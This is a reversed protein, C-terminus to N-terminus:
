PASQTASASVIQWRRAGLELGLLPVPAARLELRLLV